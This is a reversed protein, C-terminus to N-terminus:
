AIEKERKAEIGSKQTFKACLEALAKRGNVSPADLRKVVSQALAQMEPNAEGQHPLCHQAQARGLRGAAVAALIPAESGRKDSGISPFWKAPAGTRRADALLREYAGRFAMRAAVKDGAEILPQAVTLAQMIEDTLVATTAENMPCLAWAEDASPRGDDGPAPLMQAIIDAPKPAFKGAVPDSLHLTLARMTEPLSYPKLVEFALSVAGPGPRRGYQEQASSWLEKFSEADSNNM